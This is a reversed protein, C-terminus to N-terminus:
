AAERLREAARLRVPISRPNRTREIDDALEAGRTLIRYTPAFEEPVVPLGAPADSRARRAFEQKVMRDELSQYALVLIRGGVRLLDLAVPLAAALIALEHNVEIRLAQFVRKAPHGASRLAMPTAENLITVLQGSREIAVTARATVIAKAYKAALKEEGYETFIRRLDREDYTALVDAATMGNSADMRMDLDADQAYAFGREPRDVQLSSVGLDFLIGSPRPWGTDRWAIELDDYASHTLRVRDDFSELRERAIALAELDRDLGLVRLNPYRKLAAESHGGMGITADILVADSEGLSPGLLELTRELMVPTHIERIDMTTMRCSWRFPNGDM